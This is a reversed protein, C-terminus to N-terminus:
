PYVPESIRIGVPPQFVVNTPILYDLTPVHANIHYGDSVELVVAVKFKSQPTVRDVSAFGQVKVVKESGQGFALVPFLFLGVLAFGLRAVLEQAAVLSSLLAPTAKMAIASLSGRM